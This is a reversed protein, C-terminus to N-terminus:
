IIYEPQKEERGFNIRNWLREHAFYVFFKFGTDALGIAAAFEWAGTLVYAILSTIITAIIRWSIAKAISRKKTEMSVGCFM